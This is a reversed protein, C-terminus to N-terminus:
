RSHDASPLKRIIPRQLSHTFGRCRSRMSSHWCSHSGGRHHTDELTDHLWAAAIVNPHEGELSRAVAEPHTIYPTTGNRRFQGDHSKRAISSALTVLDSM